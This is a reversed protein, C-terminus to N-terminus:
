MKKSNNRDIQYSNDHISAPEFVAIQQNSCLFICSHDSNIHELTHHYNSDEPLNPKQGNRIITIPDGINGGESWYNYRLVNRATTSGFRISNGFRGELLVDGEYPQLPRIHELEKFYHGKYFDGNANLANPLANHNPDKHIAHPHLYYMILANTENYQPSPANILFVIENPIPYQKIQFNLPRATQCDEINDPPPDDILTYLITGVSFEGEYRTHSADIIIDQVRAISFM